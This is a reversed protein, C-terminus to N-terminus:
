MRFTVFRNVVENNRIGAYRTLEPLSNEVFTGFLPEPVTLDRLSSLSILHQRTIEEGFRYYVQKFLMGPKACEFLMTDEIMVAESNM